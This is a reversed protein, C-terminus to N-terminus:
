GAAAVCWPAVDLPDDPAMMNAEGYMDVVLARADAPEGARDIAEVFFAQKDGEMRVHIPIVRAGVVAAKGTEARHLGLVLVISSRRDLSRQHHVFNGLSYHVFAERGGEAVIREWPQLVHPHAGIVATAGADVLKRALERQKPQPVPDYEKGWHPTVIVADVDDRKALAAVQELVEKTQTFCHLVQGLDDKGFNTHLTCALWAVRMGKAETIAFWPDDTTRRTGAHRIKAADLNDLTRVLGAAGRDLAHNNATSVVDVGVEALAAALSPHANFFPYGTYVRNDFRLGPDDAPGQKDLGQAIPVELNAYTLDTRALVLAVDRWLAGFGAPDTYAQKQLEHHLLVDGVAAITVVEAPDVDCAGAFALTGEPLSAPARRGAPAAAGVHAAPAVEPASETPGTAPADAHGATAAPPSPDAPRTCALLGLVIALGAPRRMVRDYRM